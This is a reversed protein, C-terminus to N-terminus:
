QVLRQERWQDLGADRKYARGWEFSPQLVGDSNMMGTVWASLSVAVSKM